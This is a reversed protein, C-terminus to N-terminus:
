RVSMTPITECPPCTLDSIAGSEISTVPMLVSSSRLLAEWIVISPYPFGTSIGESLDFVQENALSDQVSQLICEQM